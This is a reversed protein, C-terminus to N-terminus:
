YRRHETPLTQCPSLSGRHLDITTVRTNAFNYRHYFMVHTLTGTEEAENDGLGYRLPPFPSLVMLERSLYRGIMASRVGRRWDQEKFDEFGNENVLGM